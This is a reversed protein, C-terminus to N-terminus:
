KEGVERAVTPVPIAAIPGCNEGCIFGGTIVFRQTDAAVLMRYNRRTRVQNAYLNHGCQRVVPYLTANNGIQIAVGMLNTATAPINQAIRIIYNRCNQYSGDPINLVLNNGQISVSITLITKCNYMM